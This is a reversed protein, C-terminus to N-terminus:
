LPHGLQSGVPESAVESLAVSPSRAGRGANRAVVVGGFLAAAAGLADLARARRRAGGTPDLYYMIAAGLGVGLLIDVGRPAATSPAAAAGSLSMSHPRERSPRTGFVDDEATSGGLAMAGAATADGITM